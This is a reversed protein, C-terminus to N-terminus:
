HVHDHVSWPLLSSKTTGLAKPQTSLSGIAISWASSAWTQTVWCTRATLISPTEKAGGPLLAWPGQSQMPLPRWVASSQLFLPLFMVGGHSCEWEPLGSTAWIHTDLDVRMPLLSCFIDELCYIFGQFVHPFLTVADMLVNHKVEGTPVHLTHSACGGQVDYKM